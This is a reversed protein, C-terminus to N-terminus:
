PHDVTLLERYLDHYRRASAQWSFDQGMGARQLRSRHPGALLELARGIGHLVGGVDADLFQVGTAKGAKLSAANADVVTDGLGGTRRVVPLTGYVQAYMQNLGCPEFRSPMIQLDAAATLRHALAEDVRLFARVQAPRQAAWDAFAQELAPEGVGLVVIQMPMHALVEKGALLLDAGKQDALRGIFLLLPRQDAALGLERQLVARNEAKGQRVTEYDYHVPLWADRAPNWLRTDIGNLIGHLPRRRDRLVQHLGCGHAETCIERAYGPSVTSVGHSFHIGAKMFSWAGLQEVGRPSWWDAPLGLASFLQGDFVGQYALNHITFLVRSPSRQHRLWGAVLATQWDHLHVIDPTPLLAQGLLQGVAAGFCGFRWGNDMFERGQGDRYPDGERQFLRPCDFLLLTHNGGPLCGALVRFHEGRVELETLLEVSTLRQLTGAYAPLCVTVELGQEAQAAPLAQCVDALGGTKALGLYEAAVHVVRM